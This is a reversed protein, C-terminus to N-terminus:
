FNLVLPLKLEVRFGEALDCLTVVPDMRGRNMMAVRARTLKVGLSKKNETLLESQLRLGTGNDEVSCNIMDSEKKIEIVIKGAGQKNAIGHWISNEVFPQLILPPIMTNEPDLDNDIRVEYSFKNNM